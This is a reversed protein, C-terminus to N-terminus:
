TLHPYSGGVKKTVEEATDRLIEGYEELREAPLEFAFGVIVLLHTVQGYRDFIPAALANHDPYYEAISKAYGLRRVEALHQKFQDGDVISNTTYQPLGLREIMRDVAVDDLWAFYAKALVSSNAPFREGVSMTVKIPRRSEVKDVVVFEETEAMRVVLCALETRDVLRRAFDLATQIIQRQGDVSAALEILGLGLCYGKTSPDFAVLREGELTKLINFCTSPNVGVSRAIETMTAPENSRQQFFRMIATAHQVAPVTGKAPDTRSAAMVM